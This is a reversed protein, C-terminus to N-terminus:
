CALSCRVEVVGMAGLACFPSKRTLRPWPVQLAIASAMCFFTWVDVSTEEELMSVELDEHSDPRWGSDLRLVIVAGLSYPRWGGYSTL